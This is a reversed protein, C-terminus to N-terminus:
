RPVEARADSMDLCLGSACEPPVTCAREECPVLHEGPIVATGGRQAWAWLACERTGHIPDDASMLANPHVEGAMPVLHWHTPIIM